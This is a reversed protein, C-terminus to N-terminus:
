LTLDYLEQYINLSIDFNSHIVGQMKFNQHM